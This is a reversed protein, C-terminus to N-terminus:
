RYNLWSWTNRIMYSQYELWSASIFRLENFKQYTQIMIIIIQGNLKIVIM